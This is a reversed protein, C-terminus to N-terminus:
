RKNGTDISDVEITATVSSRRIDSEDLVIQGELDRFRGRVKFWLNRIALEVTTYGPDFHWTRQTQVDIMRVFGTIRIKPAPETQFVGFANALRLGPSSRLSFGPDM